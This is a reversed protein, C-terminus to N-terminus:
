RAPGRWKDFSRAGTYGLYGAGFLWWLSEPVAGLLRNLNEAPHCLPHGFTQRRTVLLRHTLPGDQVNVLKNHNAKITDWHERLRYTGKDADFITAGLVMVEYGQGVLQLLMERVAMSAGSSTDLLCFPNAWLLRPKRPTPQKPPAPQKKRSM